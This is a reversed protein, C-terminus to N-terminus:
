LSRMFDRLDKFRPDNVDDIVFGAGGAEKIERLVREQNPTPVKGPRKTEIGIFKGRYCGVYDITTAGYGMQVPWFNYIPEFESLVNKVKTKVMREGTM